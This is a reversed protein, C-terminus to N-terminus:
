AKFYRFNPPLAPEEARDAASPPVVPPAENDIAPEKPEQPEPESAPAEPEPGLEKPGRGPGGSPKPKAGPKTEPAKSGPKAGSQPAPQKPKSPGAAGAAKKDFGVTITSSTPSFNKVIGQKQKCDGYEWPSDLKIKGVGPTKTTPVGFTVSTKPLTDCKPPRNKPNNFPVWETWGAQGKWRIGKEGAPLTWSGIQTEKGSSTDVLIGRWTTGETNEVRINYIPDYSGKVPLTCSVGDGGDAGGRCNKDKTTVGKEFASFIAQFNDGPLPQLGTYAQRSTGEFGFQQAYYWGKVHASDKISFPFTVDKLGDKPGSAASWPQKVNAVSLAPALAAAVLFPTKM